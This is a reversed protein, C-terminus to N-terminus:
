IVDSMSVSGVEMVGMESMCGNRILEFGPLYLDSDDFTLDLKTENIFLLNIKSSSMFVLLKEIHALLSNINLSAM